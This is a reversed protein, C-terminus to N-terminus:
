KFTNKGLNKAEYLSKDADNILQDISYGEIYESIGISCTLKYADDIHVENNTKSIIDIFNNKNKLKEIIRQAIVTAYSKNTEPLIIIFEDGGFRIITDVDRVTEILLLSFEKLIEDGLSHGFRDNYYKFNDLDIFLLTMLNHEKNLYRNIRGIEYNLTRNLENRNFLGTLQDTRASQYLKENLLKLEKTRDYVQEELTKTLIELQNSKDSFRISIISAMGIIFLSVGFGSIYPGNLNQVFMKFILDFFVCFFVIFLNFFMLLAEYKKIFISHLVIIFSYIINLLVLVQLIQRSLYFLDYTPIFLLYIAYGISFLRLIKAIDIIARFNFFKSFFLTLYVSGIIETFFIVKQFTLYSIEPIIIGYIYSIYFNSLYISASLCLVAYYLNEKDKFRRFFILFHYISIALLIFSVLMNIISNIFNEHKYYKEATIHDFLALNGLIQGESNVYVKIIIENMQNYKILSSPISYKRLVNWDNFYNPPGKGTNGIIIGNFFTQDSIMIRGLVLDLQNCGIDHSIFINKKLAISGHSQHNLLKILNIKTIDGQVEHYELKNLSIISDNNQCISYSWESNLQLIPRLNSSSFLVLYIFFSLIIFSLFISIIDITSINFGFLRVKNNLIMKKFMVKYGLNINVAKEM